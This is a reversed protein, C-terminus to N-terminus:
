AGEGGRNDLRTRSLAIAEHLKAQLVDKLPLVTLYAAEQQGAMVSVVREGYGARQGQPVETRIHQGSHWYFLTLACNVTSALQQRSQEILQCIDGLLQPSPRM